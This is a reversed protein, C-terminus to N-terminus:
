SISNFGRASSRRFRVAIRAPRPWFPRNRIGVVWAPGNGRKLIFSHLHPVGYRHAQWAAVTLHLALGSCLVIVMMQKITFAPLRM